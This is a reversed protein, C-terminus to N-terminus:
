LNGLNEPIENWNCELDTVFGGKKKRFINWIERFGLGLWRCNDVFGEDWGVNVTTVIM